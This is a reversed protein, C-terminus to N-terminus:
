VFLLWVGTIVGFGILLPAGLWIAFGALSIFTYSFLMIIGVGLICIRIIGGVLRSFLNLIIREFLREFSFHQSPYEVMRKYPAFLTTSLQPISFLNFIYWWFNRSVRIYGVLSSSYHWWFYHHLLGFFFM